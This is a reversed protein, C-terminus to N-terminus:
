ILKKQFIFLKSYPEEFGRKKKRKKREVKKKEVVVVVLLLFFIAASNFLLDGEMPVIEVTEDSLLEMSMGMGDKEIVFLGEEPM